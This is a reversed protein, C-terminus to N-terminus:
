AIGMNFPFATGGDGEIGYPLYTPRWLRMGAGWELDAGFVLPLRSRSQLQNLKMAVDLPSGIGVVFGGVRAEDILRETEKMAPGRYNEFGGPLRLMLMQGVREELTMDSLTTHVWTEDPLDLPAPPLPLPPPAPARACSVLACLAAA